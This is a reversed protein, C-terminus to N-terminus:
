PWRIRYVGNIEDPIYDHKDYFTVLHVELTSGRPDSAFIVFGYQPPNDLRSTDGQDYQTFLHYSIFKSTPIVTLGRPIRIGVRTTHAYKGPTRQEISILLTNKSDAKLSIHRTKGPEAAFLLDSRFVILAALPLLLRRSM